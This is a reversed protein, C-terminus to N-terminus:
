NILLNYTRNRCPEGSAAPAESAGATEVNQAELATVESAAAEGAATATTGTEPELVVVNGALLEVWRQDGSPIWKAYYRLSTTPKRHGLQQRM